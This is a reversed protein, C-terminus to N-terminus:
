GEKGKLLEIFAEIRTMLPGSDGIDWESELKLWPIPPDLKDLTKGMFYSEMAWTECLRLQYWVVGDVAYDRILNLIFDFHRDMSGCIFCCNTRKMLYREALATMPDGDAAVNEWYFLVGEAIDEIVVNGGAAEIFDLVRSDGLAINPGTILIRPGEKEEVEKRGLEDYISELLDVMFVPDALHAAHNLRIFDTTSIPPRSSKRLESIKKLLDRMKRYVDIAESLKKDDVGNGTLDELSEKFLELGERYYTLAREGDVQQPIGLKFVPVDTYFEYLDSTRRLHQCTIPAALMDMLSYYPMEERLVWYGYQARAFPCIYRCIANTSADVATTDGGHVLGVPVAGAAYIIEAPLYDGVFHAVIKKGEARMRKLEVPRSILHENLREMTEMM